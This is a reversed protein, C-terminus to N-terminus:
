LRRRNIEVLKGAFAANAAPSDDRTSLLPGLLEFTLTAGGFDVSTLEPVVREPSGDFSSAGGHWLGLNATQGWVTRPPTGPASSRVMIRPYAGADCFVPRYHGRDQAVHGPFTVLMLWTGEKQDVLGLSDRLVDPVDDPPCTARLRDIEALTTFWLLEKGLSPFPSGGSDSADLQFVREAAPLGKFYAAEVPTPSRSVPVAFRTTSTMLSLHHFPKVTALRMGSVNPSRLAFTGVHGPAVQRPYGPPFRADWLAAPVVDLSPPAAASAAGLVTAVQRLLMLTATHTHLGIRAGSAANNRVIQGKGKPDARFYRRILPHPM